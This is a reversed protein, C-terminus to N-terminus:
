TDKFPIRCFFGTGTLVNEKFIKCVCNQMQYLIKKTEKLTVKMSQNENPGGEILLM